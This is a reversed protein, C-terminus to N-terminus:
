TQQERGPPEQGVVGAVHPEEDAEPQDQGADDHGGLPVSTACVYRRTVLSDNGVASDGAQPTVRSSPRRGAGDRGPLAPAPGPGRRQRRDDAGRHRLDLVPLHDEGQAARGAPPPEPMPRVLGGLMPGGSRGSSGSRRWPWWSGSWRGSIWRASTQRAVVGAARHHHRQGHRRGRVDDPPRLPRRHARARQGAHGAAEHGLLGLPHGLAIAGGNVNVREM